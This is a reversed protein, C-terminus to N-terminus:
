APLDHGLSQVEFRQATMGPSWYDAALGAKQKLRRVFQAPEPLQQWVSPLFLAQRGTETERLILGDRGPRLQSLLDAETLVTMPQPEGLISIHLDLDSLEEAQVPPFRPDHFAASCASRVVNWALPETARVSGCCGRLVGDRHLTVFTARRPRLSEPLQELSPPQLPEGHVGQEIARRALVLLYTQEAPSLEGTSLQSHMSRLENM